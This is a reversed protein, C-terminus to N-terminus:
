ALMKSSIRVGHAGREGEGVIDGGRDLLEPALARDADALGDVVENAGAQNPLSRCCREHLLRVGEAVSDVVGVNGVRDLREVPGGGARPQGLLEGPM